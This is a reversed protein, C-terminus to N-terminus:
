IGLRSRIAADKLREARQTTRNAKEKQDMRREQEAVELEAADDSGLYRGSFVDLRKVIELAAKVDGERVAKNVCETANNALRELRHVVAQRLDKRGRNLAAQFAFNERLWAHVTWRTVGAAAAADTVSSGALLADLAAIQQTSLEKATANSGNNAAANTPTATNTTTESPM